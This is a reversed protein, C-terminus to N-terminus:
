PKEKLVKTSIQYAKNFPDRYKKIYESPNMGFLINFQRRFYKADNFGVQFAADNVNCNSRIMLEASKRLRIYRIFGAVSQGSM